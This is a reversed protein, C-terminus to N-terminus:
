MSSGPSNIGSETYTPGSYRSVSETAVDSYTTYGKFVFSFHFFYLVFCLLRLCLYKVHDNKILTSRHFGNTLSGDAAKILGKSSDLLSLFLICICLFVIERQYSKTFTLCFIHKVFDRNTLSTRQCHIVILWTAASRQVISHPECQGSHALM